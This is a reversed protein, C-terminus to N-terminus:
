LVRQERTQSWPGTFELGSPRITSRRCPVWGPAGIAWPRRYQFPHFQLKCIILNSDRISTPSNCISVKRRYSYTPLMCFSCQIKKKVARVLDIARHHTQARAQKTLRLLRQASAVRIAGKKSPATLSITGHRKSACGCPIGHFFM